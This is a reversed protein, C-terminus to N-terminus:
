GTPPVPHELDQITHREWWRDCLARLLPNSILNLLDPALHPSGHRRVAEAGLVRLWNKFGEPGRFGTVIDRVDEVRAPTQLAGVRRGLGEIARISEEFPYVLSDTNSPVGRAQSGIVTELDKKYVHLSDSIHTYTGPEVGIWGAIIEQLTMFQVFNHPTGLFLDNSRLVQVWELRGERVKLMSLLNCPTDADAPTGEPEPMDASPNWIQLVVQRSDPNSRLADAARRIQDFGFSRRLRAGYAGHYHSAHGAYDPLKKNWFNIFSAESMGNLIWIVEALAFAPNMAPERSMIWRQRTDEIVFAAHLLEFAPEIRGSQLRPTRDRFEAAGLLWAEDATKADFMLM